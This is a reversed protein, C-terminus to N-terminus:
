ILYPAIGEKTLKVEVGFSGSNGDCQNTISLEIEPSPDLDITIPEYVICNNVDKVYVIYDGSDGNFVSSQTWNLDSAIPATESALLFQYEYPPTGFTATATITGANAACNDNTTSVALDLNEFSERIRFPESPKVCLNNVGGVETFMIYYEGPPLNMPTSGSVSTAGGLIPISGNAGLVETYDYANYVQFDIASAGSDFGTVTFDAYGNKLGKCTVNYGEVIKPEMQSQYAVAKTGKQVYECGTTVDYVVYTYVVGPQLNTFTYSKNDVGTGAFWEPNPAGPTDNYPNSYPYIAFYFNGALPVDPNATNATVKMSGDNIGCAPLTLDELIIDPYSNVTADLITECGNDDIIRITYNGYDLGDFLVASNFSIGNVPNTTSTSALQDNRDYLVITFDGTGGSNVIVEISGLSVGDGTCQLSTVKIETDLEEPQGITAFGEVKCNKADTVEIIYDGAPLNTTQNGFSTGRVGGGVNEFVEITYPSVGKSQDIQVDLAGTASDFCTADTVVIQSIEPRVIPAVEKETITTCGKGDTIKFTYTGPTSTDYTFTANTIPTSPDSWAGGDHRVVYT